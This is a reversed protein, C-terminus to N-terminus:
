SKSEFFFQALPASSHLPWSASSAIQHGPNSVSAHLPWSLQEGDPYIFQHFGEKSPPSNLVTVSLLYVVMGDHRQSVSLHVAYVQWVVAVEVPQSGEGGKIQAVFHVHKKFPANEIWKYKQLSSYNHTKM